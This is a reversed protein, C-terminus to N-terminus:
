DNFTAILFMLSLFFNTTLFVEDVGYDPCNGNCVVYIDHGKYTGHYCSTPTAPHFIDENLSLNFKEIFPIREAKSFLCWLICICLFLPM